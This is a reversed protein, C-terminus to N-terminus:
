LRRCWTLIRWNCERIRRPKRQEIAMFFMEGRREAEDVFRDWTVPRTGRGLLCHDEETMWGFEVDFARHEAKERRDAEMAKPWSWNNEWTKFEITPKPVVEENEVIGM